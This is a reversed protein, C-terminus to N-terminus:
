GRAHGAELACCSVPVGGTYWLGAVPATGGGGPPGCGSLDYAQVDFRIAVADDTGSTQARGHEGPQQLGLQRDDRDADVGVVVGIEAADGPVHAYSVRRELGVEPPQRHGVVLDVCHRGAEGGGQRRDAAAAHLGDGNVRAPEAGNVQELREELLAHADEAEVGELGECALRAGLQQAVHRAGHRRVLLAVQLEALLEGAAEAHTGEAEGVLALREIVERRDDAAVQQDGELALGLAEHVLGGVAGAPEIVEGREQARREVVEEGAALRRVGERPRDRAAVHSGHARM